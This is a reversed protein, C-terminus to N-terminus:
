CVGVEVASFIEALQEILARPPRDFFVGATPASIGRLFLYAAGGVHTDYDYDAGLRLRLLKHLAVLYIVYQLDYRSSLIKDRMAAISYATATPGIYNSKYDVVYYLGNYEFVLDIFGKLMGHLQTPLVSPRGHGPLVHARVLQDIEQADSDRVPFWFEPEASYQTLQQLCVTNNPLPLPQTLMHALWDHLVAQEHLWPELQTREVIFQYRLEADAALVGFGISAADELLNHLYTGADPGKPFSHITHPTPLQELVPPSDFQEELANQSDTDDSAIWAGYKLASYSAVWWREFRHTDPMTCWALASQGLAPPQYLTIDILEPVDVRVSHPPPQWSELVINGAGSLIYHLATDTFTQYPAIGIFTKYQARTVAVYLKRIDEQLRELDIKAAIDDNDGDFAVQLQGDDDHYRAPYKVRLHRKKTASVFPIFVLPYQLGKSKHITIVQVLQNDSELRVQQEEAETSNRDAVAEIHEALYRLVGVMGETVAAHQQLLEAIHLVDTLLREGDVQTLLRAPIHYDHLIKQITALVGQHQWREHYRYFREAFEDWQLEDNLISDIEAVSLDLLGSVLAARLLRPDRPQACAQLVRLLEVALPCQFVSDRDSLYVSQIQRRHLAERIIKAENRDNVLVAIDGPKVRVFGDQGAFGASPDNLLKAITEAHWNALREHYLDKTLREESVCDFQLACTHEGHQIFSTNLGNARVPIFPVPDNGTASDAFCFPGRPLTKATDFLANSANVMEVTSRYNTALTYHRGVTAERAQLYTYIDANRFSYIAQKPDGILFLGTDAAPNAVRYVHNFIAYQIPDTDQFEDVMAIPFQTRIIDALVAGHDGALAGELRMLMDDFGIEARQRQLRQFRQQLWWAAHALLAATPDPLMQVVQQLLALQEWLMCAPLETKLCDQLGEPTLKEWGSKPELTPTLAVGEQGLQSAWDRLQSLWKEESNARLKRGDVLKGQRLGTLIQEGEDIWQLWPLQHFHDRIEQQKTILEAYIDSPELAPSTLPLNFLPRTRQLLKEPTGFVDSLLQFQPLEAETLSSIYTRWYDRAVQEWLEGTTTNLAQSFLGGSAFAHERLMRNCWGHITHVAAEDMAQSALDLYRAQDILEAPQYQSKLAQLFQDNLTIEDRFFAAAQSLNQRIRTRLEETAADTFTVVLIEDPTYRRPCGHGLVLRVYLAAITYTKGTGASAEILRSGHLPFTLPDLYNVLSTTAM